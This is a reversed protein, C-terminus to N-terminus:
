TVPAFGNCTWLEDTQDELKICFAIFVRARKPDLPRGLPQVGVTIACASACGEADTGHVPDEGVFAIGASFPRIADLVALSASQM